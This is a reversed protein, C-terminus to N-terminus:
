RSAMTGSRRGCHCRNGLGHSNGNACAASWRIDTKPTDTKHHKNPGRTSRQRFQTQDLDLGSHQTSTSMSSPRLGALSEADSANAPTTTACRRPLIPDTPRTSSMPFRRCRGACSLGPGSIGRSTAEASALRGILTWRAAVSVMTAAPTVANACRRRNMLVEDVGLDLGGAAVREVVSSRGFGVATRGPRSPSSLKHPRRLRERCRCRCCRRIRLLISLGIVGVIVSECIGTSRLRKLREHSPVYGSTRARGRPLEDGGSPM